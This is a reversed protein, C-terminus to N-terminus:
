ACRTLPCCFANRRGVRLAEVGAHCGFLRAAARDHTGGSDSHCSPRPGLDFQLSSSMGSTWIGLSRILWLGLAILATATLIMGTDSTQVYAMRGISPPASQGALAAISDAIARLDRMRPLTVSKGGEAVVEIAGPGEGSSWGVKRIEDGPIQHIETQRYTPRYLLRRDTVVVEAQYRWVLLALWVIFVAVMIGNLTPHGFGLLIPREANGAGYSHLMVVLFAVCALTLPVLLCLQAVVASGRVRLRVQEGPKLVDDINIAM